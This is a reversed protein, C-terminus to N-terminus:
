AQYSLTAVRGDGYLLVIEDLGDRDLDTLVPSTYVATDLSRRALVDGATADFVAVTGDYAAAVVHTTDEDTLTGVTPATMRVAEDTVRGTWRLAGDDLALARAIGDPATVYVSDHDADGVRAEELGDGVRSSWHEHGNSGDMVVIADRHAMALALGDSRDVLTWSTSGYQYATRWAIDGEGTFCVVETPRDGHNIALNPTGDATLDGVLPPALVPQDLGYTWVVSGDARVVSLNGAFDVVALEPMEDDTLDAVIPPTYGISELLDQRFTEAGTAVDYAFVGQRQTAAVLEPSGDGDLDGVGLDGIAHANCHDSPFPREWHVAGSADVAVVGCEGSDDHGNLPVGIVPQGDVTAVAMAHHNGEFNSATKSTWEVTLEGPPEPQGSGLCGALPIAGIAGMRKLLSRRSVAMDPQEDM